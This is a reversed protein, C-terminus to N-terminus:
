LALAAFAAIGVFGMAIDPRAAADPTSSATPAGVASTVINSAEAVSSPDPNSEVAACIEPALQTVRSIDEQTCESGLLICPGISSTFSDRGSTCLCSFDTSACNAAQTASNFCPIACTPIQSVLGPLSTSNQAAVFAAFLSVSLAAFQM